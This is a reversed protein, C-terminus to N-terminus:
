AADLATIQPGDIDSQHASSPSPVFQAADFAAVATTSLRHGRDHTVGFARAQTTSSNASIPPAQAPSKGTTLFSSISTDRHTQPPKARDLASINAASFALIQTTAFAAVATAWTASWRAPSPDGLQLRASRWCNRPPSPSMAQSTRSKRATFAKVQTTSLSAVQTNLARWRRHRQFAAIQTPAFTGCPPPRCTKFLRSRCRRLRATSLSSITM